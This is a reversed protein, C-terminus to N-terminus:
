RYAVFERNQGGGSARSLRLSELVDCAFHRRNGESEFGAATAAAGHCGFIVVVAAGRLLVLLCELRAMGGLTRQLLQAFTYVTQM